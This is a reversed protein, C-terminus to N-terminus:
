GIKTDSTVRGYVGIAALVTFVYDPIPPLGKIGGVANYIGILAAVISSIITKSKYWPKTEMNKEEQLDIKDAIKHGAIKLLWDPIWM